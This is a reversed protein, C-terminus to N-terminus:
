TPPRSAAPTRGPPAALDTMDAIRFEVRDGFEALRDRALGLTAESADTWIGRASPFEQLM